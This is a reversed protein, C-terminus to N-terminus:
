GVPSVTFESVDTESSGGRADKQGRLESVDVRLRGARCKPTLTSARRCSRRTARAVGAPALRNAPRSQVDSAFADGGAIM